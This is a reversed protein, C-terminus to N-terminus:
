SASWCRPPEPCARRARPMPPPLSPPLSPPHTPSCGHTPQAALIQFDCHAAAARVEGWSETAQAAVANAAVGKWHPLPVADSLTCWCHLLEAAQEARQWGELCRAIDALQLRGVGDAIRFSAAVMCAKRMDAWWELQDLLLRAHHLMPPDWLFWLVREVHGARGTPLPRLAGVSWSEMGAIADAPTGEGDRLACRIRDGCLKSKSTFAITFALCSRRPCLLARRAPDVTARCVAKYSRLSRQDLMTLMSHLVEDPLSHLHTYSAAAAAATDM